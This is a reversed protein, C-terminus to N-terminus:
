ALSLEVKPESCEERVFARVHLRVPQHTLPAHTNGIEM